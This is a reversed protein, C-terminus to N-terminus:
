RLPGPGPGPDPDPDPQCHPCWYVVREQGAPGQSDRRIPTGCRRCPEGARGYVWHTRGRRLDGTTVSGSRGLNATLLKRALGLLRDLDRVLAVPTSPHVGRLFLTEARYITGIGAVNRQDLLADGISLDPHQRLRRVAEDPDWGAGLLDPGLHGVLDPERATPVLDLEHLHYGVATNDATRLVVRILHAPGGRWKEGAAFVRWSGDMRLHSHLTWPTGARDALRLLLHKGHSASEVVQWGAVDAVALRPVRFEGRELTRGVLGRELVRATNWVIDGEPVRGDERNTRDPVM